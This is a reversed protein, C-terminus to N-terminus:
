EPPRPVRRWPDLPLPPGLHPVPVLLPPLFPRLPIPPFLLQLQNLLVPLLQHRPTPSSLLLQSQPLPSLKQPLQLKPPFLPLPQNPSRRPPHVIMAFTVPVFVFNIVNAVPLYLVLLGFVMVVNAVLMVQLCPPQVLMFVSKVVSLIFVCIIEWPHIVVITTLASM